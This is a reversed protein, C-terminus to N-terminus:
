RVVPLTCGDELPVTVMARGLAVPAPWASMTPRLKQGSSILLTVSLEPSEKVRARVV